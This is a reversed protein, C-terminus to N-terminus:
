LGTWMFDRGSTAFAGFDGIGSILGELQDGATLGPLHRHMQSFARRPVTADSTAVAIGAGASRHQTIWREGLIGYLQVLEPDSVQLQSAFKAFYRRGRGALQVCAETVVHSISGSGTYKKVEWLRFTLTRDAVVRHIVMGDGGPETPLLSPKEIYHVTRHPERLDRSALYWVYEAVAAQLHDPNAPTSDTPLGMSPEVFDEVGAREIPTLPPGGTARTHWREYIHQAAVGCRGKMMEDALLWAAADLDSSTTSLRGFRWVCHRARFRGPQFGLLAVFSRGAAREWVPTADANRGVLPM